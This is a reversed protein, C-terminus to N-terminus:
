NTVSIVQVSFQSIRVFLWDFNPLNGIGMLIYIILISIIIINSQEYVIHLSKCVCVCLPRLGSWLGRDLAILLWLWETVGLIGVLCPSRTGGSEAEFNLRWNVTQVQRETAVAVAIERCESYFEGIVCM